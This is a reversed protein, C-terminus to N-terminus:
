TLSFRYLEKFQHSEYLHKSQYTQEYFAIDWKLSNDNVESLNVTAKALTDLAKLEADDLKQNTIVHKNLYALSIHHLPKARVKTITSCNNVINEVLNHLNFPAEISLNVKRKTPLLEIGNVNPVIASYASEKYSKLTAVISNILNYSQITDISIFGTMSCHPHYLHAENAGFHLHSLRYFKLISQYLKSQKNPELYVIFRKQPEIRPTNYLNTNLLYSNLSPSRTPRVSFHAFKVM